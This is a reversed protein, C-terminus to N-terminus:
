ASVHFNQLGGNEVVKSMQVFREGMNPASGPLIEATETKGQKLKFRKIIAFFWRFDNFIFSLIWFTRSGILIQVHIDIVNKHM